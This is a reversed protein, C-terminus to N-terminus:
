LEGYEVLHSRLISLFINSKDTPIWFEGDSAVVLKLIWFRLACKSPPESAETLQCLPKYM